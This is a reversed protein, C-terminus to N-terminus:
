DENYQHVVRVLYYMPRYILGFFCVRLNARAKELLVSSKKGKRIRFDLGQCAALWEIALLYRTNESMEWLRRGANLVISVHDEQNASIPITDVSHPHALTKNEIALAVSTIQAKM